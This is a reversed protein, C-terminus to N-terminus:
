TSEISAVRSTQVFIVQYAKSDIDIGSAPGAKKREKLADRERALAAAVLELEEQIKRSAMVQEQDTEARKAPSLKASVACTFTSHNSPPNAVDIVSFRSTKSLHM